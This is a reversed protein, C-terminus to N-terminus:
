GVRLVYLYGEVSKNRQKRLVITDCRLIKFDNQEVLEEIYKKSHAFRASKQLEYPYQSTKEVTFALLGSKKLANKCDSFTKALDGIYVFTDGAIILDLDHQKQLAQHIDSVHLEDYINKQKAMEVMKESLDVGILKKALPRFKEGCLGTGCGLDLINWSRKEVKTEQEVSKYLLEPVRYHLVEILHKDFYAAYQDFLSQIYEKPAMKPIKRQDIANLIYAIEKNNPQLKLAQRYHWAANKYDEAKLYISGLNSHSAFHNPDKKLAEQFYQIADNPRGLYMYIVGLNYYTNFDPAIQLLRLFYKLAAAPEGQELFIAGLNHFVTANFPDLKLCEKYHYIATDLDGLQHLLQAMQNHAETHNPHLQLTKDLHKVAEIVNNQRLLIIALNYHADAYNPQIQIAQQYHKGAQGLKGQQLFINGLNNHAVAYNPQLDLAKQYYSIAKSLKGLNKLINGMSNHFSPSNPQLEIAKAILKQAETFKGKQSLLIGLLHLVDANNPENHLIRRYLEEAKKIEGRQHHQLATKFM